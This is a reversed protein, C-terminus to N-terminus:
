KCKTWFQSYDCEPLTVASGLYFDSFKCICIMIDGRSSLMFL